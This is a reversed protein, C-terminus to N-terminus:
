IDGDLIFAPDNSVVSSVSLHADGNVLFDVDPKLVISRGDTDATYLLDPDDISGVAAYLESISLPQGSGVSLVRVVGPELGDILTGLATHEEAIPRFALNGGNEGVIFFLAAESPDLLAYYFDNAGASVAFKAGNQVFGISKDADFGGELTGSVVHPGQPFRWQFFPYSKGDIIAWTEDFDWSDFWDGSRTTLQATTLGKGRAGDET